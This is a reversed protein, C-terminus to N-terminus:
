AHEAVPQLRDSPQAPGVVRGDFTVWVMVQEGSRRRAALALAAAAGKAAYTADLAPAGPAADDAYYADRFLSAARTAAALPRGYAGGYMRHEVVVRVAPLSGRVDGVHRMLRRTRRILLNVRAANAAVRPAVRAAVVVTRMGAIGLGLALGAATGGSGLPVVVYSPEPAAGAAVQGALELGANVHGLVGLPSSGGIPVYHRVGLGPHGVWATGFGARCVAIRVLASGAWKSSITAWCRDAAAAAVARALPHMEHRWRIAVTDAGLRAAHAATAYVHTSGEGGATLVQDGARISGLLFELARVKNGAAVPANVDDRKLWMEGVRPLEIRQVPSPFAGLVARPLRVLAPFRDFLPFGKSEM